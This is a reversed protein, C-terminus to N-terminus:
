SVYVYYFGAGRRSERSPALVGERELGKLVGGVNTPHAGVIAGLETTSIRGRHRAYDSAITKRDPWWRNEAFETDVRELSERAAPNLAFAPDTGAQTGEVAKLLWAGDVRKEILVNLADQTELPSLQLLRAATSGDVWGRQVVQETLMLLRLDNRVSPDGFLELWAMWAQDIMNGVLGTVVSPGAIERIEPRPQGRRLMDGVMRDVGIGEREAIRLAALMETLATNRSKSPHTIINNENVGSIFGGPSTVRLTRGIHEIVTPEPSNWDRHAVGNVIAERIAREPLERVQGSALGRSLHQIPNNARANIFVEALQEIVSRDTRRVRDTSDGGSYDRRIYDLSPATRGVFLLKGAETLYGDATSANLRRLLEATTAEALDQASPENSSMLFDRAIEIASERVATIPTDSTGASWDYPRRRAYWSTPDIDVCNDCVRWKLKGNYRIPEIAQPIYLVLLRAGNVSEERVSVTLRQETLQYIRHRLWEVDLQTGVLARSKDVVGVILAGGGDSNAMCASEEALAQAARDNTATGPLVVGGPGRRGAEEKFDVRETEDM